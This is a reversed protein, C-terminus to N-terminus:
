ISSKSKSRELSQKEVGIRINNGNNIDQNFAIHATKPRKVIIQSRKPGPTSSKRQESSMIMNNSEYEMEEGPEPKRRNNNSNENNRVQGTNRTQNNSSGGRGQNRSELGLAM